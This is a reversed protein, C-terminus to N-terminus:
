LKGWCSNNNNDYTLGVMSNLLCALIIVGFTKLCTHKITYGHVTVSWVVICEVGFLGLIFRGSSCLVSWIPHPCDSHVCSLCDCVILTNCTRM